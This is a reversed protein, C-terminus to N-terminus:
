VKPRRPVTSLIPDEHLEKKGEEVDTLLVSCDEKVEEGEGKVKGEVVVQVKEESTRRELVDKHM